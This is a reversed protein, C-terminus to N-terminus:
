RGILRQWRHQLMEKLIQRRIDAGAAAGCSGEWWWADARM